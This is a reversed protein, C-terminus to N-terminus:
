NGGNANNWLEMYNNNLKGIAVEAEPVDRVTTCSWDGYETDSTLYHKIGLKEMYSGYECFSWDDESLENKSRMIYCPDTIIIDGKFKM